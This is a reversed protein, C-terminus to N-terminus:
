ERGMTHIVNQIWPKEDDNALQHNAICWILVHALSSYSVHSLYSILSLLTARTEELSLSPLQGLFHITKSLYEVPSRQIDISGTPFTQIERRFEEHDNSLSEDCSQNNTSLFDSSNLSSGFLPHGLSRALWYKKLWVSIVYASSNRPYDSRMEGFDDPTDDTILTVYCLLYFSLDFQVESYTLLYDLLQEYQDLACILPM